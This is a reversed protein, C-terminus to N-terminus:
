WILQGFLKQRDTIKRAPVTSGFNMGIENKLGTDQKKLHKLFSFTLLHQCNEKITEQLRTDRKKNSLRKLCSHHIETKAQECLFISNGM